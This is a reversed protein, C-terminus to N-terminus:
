WESSSGGADPGDEADQSSWAGSRVIDHASRKPTIGKTGSRCKWGHVPRLLKIVLAKSSFLPRRPASPRRTVRRPLCAGAHPLMDHQRAVHQALAPLLRRSHSRPASRQHCQSRQGKAEPAASSCCSLSLLVTLTMMACLRMFRGAFILIDLFHAGNGSEGEGICVCLYAPVECARARARACVRCSVVCVAGM